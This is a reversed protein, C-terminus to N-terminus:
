KKGKVKSRAKKNVKIGIWIKKGEWEFEGEANFAEKKGGSEFIFATNNQSRVDDYRKSVIDKLDVSGSYYLSIKQHSKLGASKRLEQIRRTFENMFGEKKLEPTLEINLSVTINGESTEAWNGGKQPSSKYVVRKVNIEEAVVERLKEPIVANTEVVSLTQRVKMGNRSRLEHAMEVIKRASKMAEEVVPDISKKDAEPYDELHVSKSSQRNADSQLGLYIHESLFPVFPACLKSVEFLVHRLTYAADKKEKESNPNQFRKRSRRVYWNSLDDIVFSEMSRAAGTVDYSDLKKSAEDILKNLKSLIWEDLYETSRTKYSSPVKIKYTAYFIYTNYLTSIFKRYSKQIDREDFRKYDGPQNVTYFYWRLSDAGYKDIIVQPDVTNGKSKSMKKGNKDLVHALSIVNKYPAGFGLLASVGFLTYFWGRTQDIGECIYDAPFKEPVSERKTKGHCFPWYGQAFPMSGSDFWVDVLDEVRKMYDCLEDKCKSCQFRVEDVYPRHLDLEGRKGYPFHKFIADRVEGVEIYNKSKEEATEKITLGRLASQLIVLPDGHSVILIRKNKYKKNVFHMFSFMRKRLKTYNEGEPACKEFRKAFDPFNIKFDQETRGDYTGLDIERIRKDFYLKAGLEKALIEATEKTRTFDSAFILDVGGKNRILRASKVVDEKGKETLHYKITEPWKTSLVPNPRNNKESEGHRMIFFANTSFNQAYLDDRSGIVEINSCKECKWVPLPTGWYRNRSFNWDKLEVLWEGFRGNKIHPPIWNVKDNSKILIDRLSSMMLFWSDMAYYLLPTKCRWCFPYSHKYPLIDGFIFNRKKLDAIIDKEADKVFIGAWQPVLNNFKGEKDVTHVKPLGLKEGINYDDEGYMVATHVIGTGEKTTVFDALCVYYKKGKQNKLSDFVPEYEIGDLDKGKMERIIKPNNKKFVEEVRDKALIYRENGDGEALVYVIDPGVALAVNGALTWPTTTWALLYTKSNKIKSKSNVGSESNGTNKGLWQDFLRIEFKVFVSKDVVDEYGQAVEHSSVSTGCRPCYPAVRHGEYLLGKDYARKIIWWLSEMYMPDYTIYPNKMDLWFGIRETLYEWEAKYKWVSERCKENFKSVGYKEVDKKNKLGLSKEVEIEVPLGHTDWGARREVRYGRMTKYRLLVDKFSRSLVHHIGPRANATPPGEYFVFEQSKIRNKVSREFVESEKWFKLIRKEQKILDM